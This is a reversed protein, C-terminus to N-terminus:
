IILKIIKALWDNWRIFRQVECTTVSVGIRLQGADGRNDSLHGVRVDDDPERSLVLWGSLGFDVTCVGDDCAPEAARDCVGDGSVGTM